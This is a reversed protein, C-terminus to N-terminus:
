TTESYINFRKPIKHPSLYKRCHERLARQDLSQGAQQMVSAVLQECEGEDSRVIARAQTVAPHTALVQEVERLDVMQAAIKTISIRRGVFYFYGDADRWALDGTHFWGNRFFHAGHQEDGMFGDAVTPGLVAIEGINKEGPLLEQGHADLLTVKNAGVISRGISGARGEFNVLIPLTETTGYGECLKLGLAREVRMSMSYSLKSGGSCLYLHPHLRPIPKGECQRLLLPLMPPILAVLRAQTKSILDLFNGRIKEVLQL